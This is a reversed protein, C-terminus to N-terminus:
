IEKSIKKGRTTKKVDLKLGKENLKRIFAFKKRAKENEEEDVYIVEKCMFCFQQTYMEPIGVKSGCKPCCRYVKKPEAESIKNYWYDDRTRPKKMFKDVVGLSATIM